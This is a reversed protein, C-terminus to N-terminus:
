FKLKGYDKQVVSAAPTTAFIAAEGVKKLGGLLTNSKETNIPKSDHQNASVEDFVDELKIVDAIWPDVIIQTLGRSSVERKVADFRGHLGPSYMAAIDVAEEHSKGIMSDLATQSAVKVGNLLVTVNGTNRTNARIIYGWEETKEVLQNLVTAFEHLLAGLNLESSSGPVTTGDLLQHALILCADLDNPDVGNQECIGVSLALLYELKTRM